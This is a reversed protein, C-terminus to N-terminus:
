HLLALQQNASALTKAAAANTGKKGAFEKLLRLRHQPPGSELGCKWREQAVKDASFKADHSSHKVQLFVVEDLAGNEGVVGTIVDAYPAQPANLLSMRQGKPLRTAPNFIGSQDARAVPVADSARM